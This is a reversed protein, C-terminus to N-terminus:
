FYESCSDGLEVGAQAFIQICVKYPSLFPLASLLQASKGAFSLFKFCNKAVSYFTTTTNTSDKQSKLSEKKLSYYEQKKIEAESKVKLDDIETNKKKIEEEVKINEERLKQIKLEM